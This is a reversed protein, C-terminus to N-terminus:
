MSRRTSHALLIHSVTFTKEQNIANGAAETEVFDISEVLLNSSHLVTIEEGHHQYCVFAVQLMVALDWALTLQILTRYYWPRRYALCQAQLPDHGRLFSQIRMWRSMPLVSFWHPRLTRQLQERYGVNWYPSPLRDHHQRGWHFRCHSCHDVTQPLPARFSRLSSSCEWTIRNIFNVNLHSSLSVKCFVSGNSSNRKFFIVKRFYKNLRNASRESSNRKSYKCYYMSFKVQLLGHWSIMARRVLPLLM